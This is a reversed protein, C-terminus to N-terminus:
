VLLRSAPLFPSSPLPRSLLALERCTKVARRYFDGLLRHSIAGTSIIPNKERLAAIIDQSDRIFTDLDTKYPGYLPEAISARGSPLSSSKATM